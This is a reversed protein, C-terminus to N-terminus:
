HASDSDADDDHTNNHNDTYDEDAVDDDSDTEENDDVHRKKEEEEYRLLSEDMKQKCTQAEKQLSKHRQVKSDLDGKLEKLINTMINIRQKTHNIGNVVNQTKQVKENYLKRNSEYIDKLTSSRSAVSATAKTANSTGISKTAFMRRPM